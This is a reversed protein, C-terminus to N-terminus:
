LQIFRLKNTAVIRRGGVDEYVLDWKQLLIISEAITGERNLKALDQDFQQKLEETVIEMHSLRQYEEILADQLHDTDLGESTDQLLNLIRFQLSTLAPVLFVTLDCGNDYAKRIGLYLYHLQLLQTHLPLRVALMLKEDLITVEILQDRPADLQPLTRFEDKLHKIDSVAYDLITSLDNHTIEFDKELSALLPYYPTNEVYRLLRTYLPSHSDTKLCIEGKSMFLQLQM